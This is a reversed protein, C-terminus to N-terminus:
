RRRARGGDGPIYPLPTVAAGASRQVLQLLKAFAAPTPPRHAPDKAMAGLLVEALEGPVGRDDLPPPDEAALRAMLTSLPPQDDCFAACGRVAAVLTAALSYVDGAASPPVQGFTEPPAYAVTAVIMGPTSQDPQGVRHAIGFDSLKPRGYLDFLINEPKIDRHLIGEAHATQLAGAIEIGTAVVDPWPQAGTSEMRDALSGGRLLPMVLCLRGDAASVADHVGVVNPHGSLRGLVTAERQFRAVAGAQGDWDGHLVKIAVERELEAHWARYVTGFGGEGLPELDTYEELVPVGVASAV